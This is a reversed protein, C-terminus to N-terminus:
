TLVGDFVYAVPGTMYVHGDSERWEVSLTGGNLHIQVTREDTLDRQIVAVAVACAGSGCALTEGAGREWTRQRFSGDELAQVFEVNTREPFLPHNEVKPGIREVLAQEADEVFIVCHPNGMNVAVAPNKSSEDLYLMATDRAESLPIQAWELNPAGMDITILDGKRTGRLIGGGTEISCNDSGQENMIIDAICRSANGCAGSQSADPNYFTARLDAANSAELVVLQDCGVGINRDCIKIIQAPALAGGESRFDLIVFDNGLGHMKKFNM